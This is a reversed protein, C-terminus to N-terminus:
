QSYIEPEKWNVYRELYDTLLTQTEQISIRKAKPLEETLCHALWVAQRLSIVTMNLNRFDADEIEKAVRVQSPIGHVFWDRYLDVANGDRAILTAGLCWLFYNDSSLWEKSKQADIKPLQGEVLLKQYAVLAAKLQEIESEAVPSPLPLGLPLWYKDRDNLDYVFTNQTGTEKLPMIFYAGKAMAPILVGSSRMENRVGKIVINEGPKIKDRSEYCVKVKYVYQQM